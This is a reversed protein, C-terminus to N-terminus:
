RRRPVRSPTPFTMCNSISSCAPAATWMERVLDPGASVFLEFGIKFGGVEGSLIRALERAREVDPTDLAVFIRDRGGM